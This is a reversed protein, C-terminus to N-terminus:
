IQRRIKRRLDLLKAKEAATLKVIRDLSLGLMRQALYRSKLWQFYSVTIRKDAGFQRKVASAVLDAGEKGYHRWLRNAHIVQFAVRVVSLRERHATM